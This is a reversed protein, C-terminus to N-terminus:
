KLLSFRSVIQHYLKGFNLFWRTVLWYKKKLVAICSRGQQKLWCWNDTIYSNLNWLCSRYQRFYWEVAFMIVKKRFAVGLLHVGVFLICCILKLQQGCRATDISICKFIFYVYGVGNSPWTVANTQCSTNKRLM